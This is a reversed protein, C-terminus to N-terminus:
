SVENVLSRATVSPLSVKQLGSYLGAGQLCERYRSVASEIAKFQPIIQGLRPDRRWSVHPNAHSRRCEIMEVKEHKASHGADTDRRRPDGASITTSHHVLNAARDTFEAWAIADHDIRTDAVSRTLEAKAALLRQTGSEANEAFVV